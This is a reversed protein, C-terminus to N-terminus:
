VVAHELQRLAEGLFAHRCIGAQLLLFELVSLGAVGRHPVLPEDAGPIKVVDRLGDGVPPRRRRRELARRFGFLELDLFGYLSKTTTPGSYERQERGGAALCSPKKYLPSDQIKASSRGKLAAFLTYLHVPKLGQSGTAAVIFSAMISA